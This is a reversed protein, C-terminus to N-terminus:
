APFESIRGSSGASIRIWSGRWLFAVIGPFAVVPRNPKFPEEPLTPPDVLSFREGKNETELKQSIEAEM